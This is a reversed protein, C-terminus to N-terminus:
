NGQLVWYYSPKKWLIVDLLYELSQVSQKLLFVASFVKLDDCAWRHLLYLLTPDAGGLPVQHLKLLVLAVDLLASLWKLHLFTQYRIGPELWPSYEVNKVGRKWILRSSDTFLYHGLEPTHRHQRAGEPSCCSTAVGAMVLLQSASYALHGSSSYRLQLGCWPRQVSLLSPFFFCSQVLGLIRRRRSSYMCTHQPEPIWTPTWLSSPLPPHYKQTSVRDNQKVWISPPTTTLTTKMYSFDM